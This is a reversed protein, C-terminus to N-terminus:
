EALLYRCKGAARAERIQELEPRTVVRKFIELEDIDGRFHTGGLATAQRGILLPSLSDLAGVRPTFPLTQGDVYFTGSPNNCRSFTIAVLHWQGNAIQFPSTFNSCASGVSNCALNGPGTAMQFGLRGNSIYVSYGRVGTITRDRKDLINVTGINQLTRVYFEITGSDCLGPFDIEIQDPVSVRTSVGNYRTARGVVGPVRQVPGADTGSNNVSGGFDASTTGAPEDFTWWASMNPPIEACCFSPKGPQAYASIALLSCAALLFVVNRSMLFRRKHLSQAVWFTENIRLTTAAPFKIATPEDRGAQKHM